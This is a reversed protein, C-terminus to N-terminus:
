RKFIRKQERAGPPAQGAVTSIAIEGLSCRRRARAAAHEM